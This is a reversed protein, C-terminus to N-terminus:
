NYLSIYKLDTKRKKKGYLQFTICWLWQWRRRQQKRKEKDDDHNNDDTFSNNFCVKNVIILCVCQLLPIDWSLSLSRQIGGLSGHQLDFLSPFRTQKVLTKCKCDCDTWHFKRITSLFHQQLNQLWRFTGNLHESSGATAQQKLITKRRQEGGQM